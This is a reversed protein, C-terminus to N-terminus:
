NPDLVLIISDAYQKISATYIYLIYYKQLEKLFKQCHPRISLYMLHTVDNSFNIMVPVQDSNIRDFSCHILTEDLDLVLIKKEM